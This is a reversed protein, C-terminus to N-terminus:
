VLSLFDTKPATMRSHLEASLKFLIKNHIMFPNSLLCQRYLDEGAYLTLTMYVLNQTKSDNVIGYYINYQCIYACIYVCMCICICM